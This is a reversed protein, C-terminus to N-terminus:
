KRGNVLVLLFWRICCCFFCGLFILGVIICFIDYVEKKGYLCNEIVYKIYSNMKEIKKM